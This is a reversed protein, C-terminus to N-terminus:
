SAQGDEAHASHTELTKPEGCLSLFAERKSIWCIIKASQAGAPLSGGSLVWSLKRGVLADHDTIRGGRWALHVGLDLTARLADGGVPIATPGLPPRYGERVRELAGAQRRSVSTGSEDHHWRRRQLFGLRRADPACTSTKAFGITEFAKQM